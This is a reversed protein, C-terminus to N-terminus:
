AIAHEEAGVPRRRSPRPEAEETTVNTLGWRKAFFSGDNAGLEFMVRDNKKPQSKPPAGTFKVVAYGLKLTGEGKDKRFFVRRGDDALITGQGDKWEIVTGFPFSPISNQQTKM